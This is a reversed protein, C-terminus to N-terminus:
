RMRQTETTVRCLGLNSPLLDLDKWSQLLHARCPEKAPSQLGWHDRATRGLCVTHASAKGTGGWGQGPRGAGQPGLEAGVAKGPVLISGCLRGQLHRLQKLGLVKARTKWHEQRSFGLSPSGPPSGDIPDCLTPCSQLSKAAAAAPGEGPASKGQDKFAGRAKCNESVFMVEM